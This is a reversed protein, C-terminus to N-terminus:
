QRVNGKLSMVNMLTQAAKEEGATSGPRCHSSSFGRAAYRNWSQISEPICIELCGTHSTLLLRLQYTVRFLIYSIFFMFVLIFTNLVTANSWWKQTHSQKPQSTESTCTKRRHRWTPDDALNGGTRRDTWDTPHLETNTWSHPPTEAAADTELRRVRQATQTRRCRGYTIQIWMKFSIDPLQAKESFYFFTKHVPWM